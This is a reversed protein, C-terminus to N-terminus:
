FERRALGEIQDLLQQAHEEIELAFTEADSPIAFGKASTTISARLERIIGDRLDDPTARLILAAIAGYLVEIVVVKGALRDLRTELDKHRKRGWM